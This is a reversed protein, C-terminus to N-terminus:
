LLRMKLTINEYELKKCNKYNQSAPLDDNQMKKRQVCCMLNVFDARQTDEAEACSRREVRPLAFACVNV